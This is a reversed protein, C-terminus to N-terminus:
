VGSPARRGPTCRICHRAYPLAVLRRSGIPKGCSACRGFTGEEMRALAATAEALVGEEAGLLDLALEEDAARRGLDAEHVSAGSSGGAAEAGIPRLAEDRLEEVNGGLRAVLVRLRDRYVHLESKTMTTKTMTTGGPATDSGTVPWTAALGGVHDAM